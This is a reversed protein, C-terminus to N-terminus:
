QKYLSYVLLGFMFITAMILLIIKARLSICKNCFLVTPEVIESKIKNKLGQVAEETTNPKSM